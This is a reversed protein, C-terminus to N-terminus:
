LLSVAYVNGDSSGFFITQNDIVPTSLISGLKHIKAESAEYEEGYLHFNDRFTNDEKYITSYNEQSAKTQFTWKIDGTQYDVGYVIGNFCGFYVLDDKFIASGYVRMNLPLKWNIKGNNKNMCYFVHADSTGFYLNGKYEAPTAIIWGAPERYNWRGRGTKADLAYINYDRSGFYVVNDKVMAAKQIEGKPFYAAGITYFKWILAGNIKNLAYFYGDFSGMFLTDGSFAASSHVIDETPYNWALSGNSLNIAYINGDGSGWYVMNGSIKPSSLYYDWLGYMKEGESSFKWVLRGSQKDVAYLNGDASGFIVLKGTLCASSQIAGNTVFDWKKAGTTEDIAYFHMDGSGIYVTGKEIVPSAYVRGGTKFKWTADQQAQLTNLFFMLIIFPSFIKTM